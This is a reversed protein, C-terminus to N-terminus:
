YVFFHFGTCALACRAFRNGIFECSSGLAVIPFKRQMDPFTAGFTLLEEIRGPRLGTRDLKAEADDSSINHNFHIAEAVSEVIGGGNIPFREPTIDPNSWDYKGVAIMQKLTM